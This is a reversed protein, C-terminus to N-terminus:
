KCKKEGITVTTDVHYFQEVLLRANEWYELEIATSKHMEVLDEVLAPIVHNINGPEFM